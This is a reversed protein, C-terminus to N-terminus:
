SLLGELETKIINEVGMIAKVTDASFPVEKASYGDNFDQSAIERDGMMVAYKGAVKPLKTKEDQVVKWSKLVLQCQM